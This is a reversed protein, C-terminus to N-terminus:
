KRAMNEMIWGIIYQLVQCVAVYLEDTHEHIGVDQASAEAFAEHTKLVSPLEELARLVAAEHIATQELATFIVNLGGSVASALMLDDPIISVFVRGVVANECLVSWGRRLRGTLGPTERRRSSIKDLALAAQNMRDKTALWDGDNGIDVRRQGNKELYNNIKGMLKDQAVISRAYVQKYNSIITENLMNSYM